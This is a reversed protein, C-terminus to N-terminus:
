RRGRRGGGSGATAKSAAKKSVAKKSVAKKSVAKKSVAKTAAAKTAAAKMDARAARKVEVASVWVPRCGAGDASLLRGASGAVGRRRLAAVTDTVGATGGLIGTVRWGGGAVVRVTVGADRQDAVVPYVAVSQTGNVLLTAEVQVGGSTARTAGILELGLDGVREPDDVEVVVVVLSVPESFRTTVSVAGRTLEGATTWTVGRQTEPQEVDLVCGAAIGTGSGVAAVRSRTHWGALGDLAGVVGDAQIVVLESGAPVEQTGSVVADRLVTGDGRLCVLRATGGLDLAPRDASVDAGHDPLQLAVIDGSGLTPADGDAKAVGAAAAARAGKPAIGSLGSLGGVRDSAPGVGIGYSRPTGVAATFPLVSPTFTKGVVAGPPPVVDLNVAFRRGLRAGVSATTPATRRKVTSGSVTTRAERAAVKSGGTLYGVVRPDRQAPPTAPAKPDQVMVDADPTNDVALGDTLRGVLPPASVDNRYGAHALNSRTGRALLGPVAVASPTAFLRAEAFRLADDPVAVDPLDVDVGLDVMSQRDIGTTQQLPLPRRGADVTYYDIEPGVVLSEAQAELRVQTGANIVDGTPLAPSTNLDRDPAAWVGMPFSGSTVERHQEMSALGGHPQWGSGAQKDLTLRLTSTLAGKGMPKLGLTAAAGDSRTVTVTADAGPGTDFVRTPVTTTFTIEFEAHVDYPRAFTGDPTPVSQAGGTASPLTGRGTIGTLARAVGGSAEELYKPVFQNWDLKPTRKDSREGFPVTVTCPGVEVEVEGRFKPGEVKVRAGLTVSISIDGLFTEIEIGASVRAWAEAVFYFPDFYVLAKAGFDARAWAWGFDAVAIVRVGAMLAESTLAFFSEGKIYIDDTVRWVLGLRPVVPYGDRHFDPHYGGLTLVFQGALPGKWWLAFAFGGTLRIEPYLLWSNDTLAARIMFVGEATSFRVLLGLEISVLAAQPRPLAMRALGMLNIELGVKGFAVAVVAVGDVLSFCTFSIGGAFWFTGLEPPFFVNLERLREMPDGIEAAPDLAIIFPYTPFQAPDDPIVLGRNIGLGGAIGTLFFAPPGGIPGNFGGFVFFSPDGNLSTYGGFVSLGYVGFRGLLMGVYGPTQGPPEGVLTKLLGGALVVGGMDASIALGMLDVSWSEVSTVEGGDWSISLQDVAATLGFIEVRGDFLLSISTVQGGAETSNFGIREVYLPGLQRQVMVWWPGPPKGARVSFRVGTDEPHKQIAIAPSFSPRTAPSAQAGADSMIGSAVPNDGNGGPAFSFGALEIQAGGGLGASVAEAYVHVAVGDISLVNLDLLPGSLNTFRLGVGAVTVGPEFEFTFEDGSRVAHVAYVSLGADKEPVLWSADVELEVKVGSTPFAFTKGEKLSVNIGLMRDDGDSSSAIGITVTEDITLELGADTANWLLRQLRRLLADPDILDAGFTPDITRGSEFLVGELVDEVQPHDDFLEDLADVVIGGVLAIAQSLLRLGAEPDNPASVDIGPGTRTVAYLAPPTADLNWRMEVSMEDFPSDPAAPDPGNLAIGVGIMRASGAASGARITAAPRLVCPGADVPFPGLRATVDVGASSLVLADLAVDGVDPITWSCALTVTPMPSDDAITVSVSDQSGFTFTVASSGPPAPLVGVLPSNLAAVIVEAAQTILATLHQELAAAPNAAFAAVRETTFDSGERLELADGLAVVLDAVRGELGGTRSKLENLLMTVLSEAAAGLAENLGPGEPYIPLPPAPAARLLSIRLGPDLTLAVGVGDIAVSLEVVPQPPAGTGVLVGAELGTLVGTGGLDLDLAVSLTLRLQEGVAAYGLSVGDVFPWGPDDGRDPVVLAALADLLAVAAAAPNTSGSRALAALWAAPDAVAAIPLRVRQLDTGADELMGLLDLVEVVVPRAAESVSGLVGIALGQLGLAPVVLSVLDQVAPADPAPWIAVTQLPQGPRGVEVVVTLGQGPAAPTAAVLRVGGLDPDISGVVLSAHAWTSTAALTVSVPDAAVTASVGGTALDLGLQAPGVTWSVATGSGAAGTILARLEAALAAPAAAVRERVTAATDHLLRDLGAPDLGHDRRLGLLEFVIGLHPEATTLRSMASSLLGRIEPVVADRAPDDPDIRVVWRERDIGLGTAEHLVLEATGPSGDLPVDVTASMWRLDGAGTTSGPGGVLWGDVLGFHLDIRVGRVFSVAIGDGDREARCLEVVGGVGVLVGGLNLDLVPLDLGSHVATVTSPAPVVRAELRTSLGDAVYAGLGRAIEAEDLSGFVPHVEFDGTRPQQSADPLSGPRRAEAARGVISRMRELPSSEHAVLAEPTTDVGSRRLRLLLRLADGSLGSTLADTALEGWPAGVTVVHKVAARTNAARIAAAGAAGYGVLVVDTSRVGLAAEVYAAQAAVPDLDPHAAAVDAPTPIRLFWQGAGTSPVQQGSGTTLDFASGAARDELWESSECSVHVVSSLLAAAAEPLVTGLLAGDGGLALLTDYGVGEFVTPTLGGPLVTAGVVGDTHLWRTALQDLGDRLSVRGVLLDAVEPLLRGAAQLAGVVTDTEPPESGTLSGLDLQVDTRRVACGPDMWVRLGPARAEGAVPCRFPDAANGSGLPRHLRFGSLLAAVPGLAWAVHDCDLVLDTVWAEVAAEADGEFVAALSLRAGQGSWGLLDAVATLVPVGLRRVLTAIAGEVAAWDPGDLTLRGDEDLHPLPIPLDGTLLSFADNSPPLALALGPATLQPRLGITPRWELEVALSDFVLAVDAFGLRATAADTRRLTGGLHAGGAFSVRGAGPELVLAAFGLESTITYDTLVEVDTSLAVDVHLAGDKLWVELFLPEQVALRWPDTEIGSGLTTADDVGAVLRGLAVVVQRTGASNAVLRTWYARLAGIPDSLLAGADLGDVGAPADIGLALRVAETAQGLGALVDDLAQELVTGASELAAQPSSLDLDVVPDDQDGTLRVGTATLAFVPRHDADLALGVRVSDVRPTANAPGILKNSTSGFVAEVRADPVASVQGSGTDARLLDVSARAVVSAQTRLAAEVWPVLVPHGGTGPSVRVGITLALDGITLTVARRATDVAGGILDALQGLWANRISETEVIDEAWGVLAGVGQTPLEALPLPPIGAVDRLGLMGALAAFPAFDPDGALAEAQARLLGGLLDLLDTGLEEPSAADLTFTRPTSTGPLQLDRLELQFGMGPEGTAVTVTAAVGGLSAQDPLPPDDRLTADVSLEIDGGERGLLLWPTEGTGLGTGRDAFRFLPVHLRTSVTPAAGQTTHEVALGLRAETGVSQVVAYITVSPDANAFLPVWTAGERTRADPQGLVEDVFRVLAARQAPDAMITKLGYGTSSGGTMPDEFWSANASGGPELIGLAVALDGFSGLSGTDLAM